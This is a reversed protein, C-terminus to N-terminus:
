KGWWSAFLAKLGPPGFMALVLVLTALTKTVSWLVGMVSRGAETTWISRIHNVGGQWFTAQRSPDSMVEVFAEKMADAMLGPLQAQRKEHEEEIRNMREHTMEIARWIREPDTTQEYTRSIGHEAM